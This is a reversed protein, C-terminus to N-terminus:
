CWLKLGMKCMLVNNLAERMDGVEQIEDIVDGIINDAIASAYDVNFLNQLIDIIEDRVDIKVYEVLDDLDQPKLLLADVCVYRTDTTNDGIVGHITFGEGDTTDISVVKFTLGDYNMTIPTNIDLSLNEQLDLFYKIAKYQDSCLMIAKNLHTLLDTVFQEYLLFDLCVKEGGIKLGDLKINKGVFDNIGIIQVNADCENYFYPYNGLLGDVNYNSIIDHVKEFNEFMQENPLSSIIRAMEGYMLDTVPVYTEQAKDVVYVNSDVKSYWMRECEYPIFDRSVLTIDINWSNNPCKLMFEVLAEFCENDLEDYNEFIKNINEM